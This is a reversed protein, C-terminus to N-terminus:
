IFYVMKNLQYNPHLTYVSELSAELRANSSDLPHKSSSFYIKDNELFVSSIGKNEVFFLWRGRNFSATVSNEYLESFIKMLAYRAKDM